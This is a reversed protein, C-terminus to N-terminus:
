RHFRKEFHKYSFQATFTLLVILLLSILIKGNRDFLFAVEYYFSIFFIQLIYISYSSDGLKNLFNNSIKYKRGLAFYSIIFIFSPIGWLVLRPFEKGNYVVTERPLSGSNFGYDKGLMVVFLVYLSGFFLVECLPTIKESVKEQYRAFLLGASFYLLFRSTLMDLYVNNFGGTVYGTIGLATLLILLPTFFNKRFILILFFVIFYFLMEFNLSWGLFIVPDVYVGNQEDPIFLYSKLISLANFDPAETSYRVQNLAWHMLIFLTTAAFYLPIVRWLRKKLFLFPKDYYATQVVSTYIIFGSIFFFIDVGISGCFRALPTPFHAFVV